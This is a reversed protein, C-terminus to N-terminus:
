VNGESPALGSFELVEQMLINLDDLPYQLLDEIDMEEAGVVGAKFIKLMCDLNQDMDATDGGAMAQFTDQLKRIQGTTLKKVDVKNKMFEVSKTEHIVDINKM